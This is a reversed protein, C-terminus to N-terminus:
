VQCTSLSPAMRRLPNDTILIVPITAGDTATIKEGNIITLGAAAVPGVLFAMVLIVLLVLPLVKRKMMTYVQLKGENKMWRNVCSQKAQSEWSASM